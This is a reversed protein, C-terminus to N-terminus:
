GCFHGGLFFNLLFISLPISSISLFVKTFSLNSERKNKLNSIRDTSLFRTPISFLLFVPEIPGSSDPLFRPLGLSKFSFAIKRRWMRDTSFYVRDASNWLFVFKSFNQFIKEISDNSFCTKIIHWSHNHSWIIKFILIKLFCNLKTLKRWEKRKECGLSANFVELFKVITPWLFMVVSDYTGFKVFNQKHHTCSALAHSVWLTIHLCLIFM